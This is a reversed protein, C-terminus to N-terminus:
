VPPPIKLGAAEPQIWSWPSLPTYIWCIFIFVRTSGVLSFSMTHVLQLVSERKSCAAGDFPSPFNALILKCKLFGKPSRAMWFCGASNSKFFNLALSSSPCQECLLHDCILVQCDREKSIWPAQKKWDEATKRGRKDKKKKKDKGRSVSAESSRKGAGVSVVVAAVPEM